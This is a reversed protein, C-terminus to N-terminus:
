PVRASLFRGPTTGFHRSFARTMHSQDSFGVYAAAEALSQGEIMAQKARKVRLQTLYGHPTAGVEKSFRRLIQFRSLGSVKAFDDLSLPLDLEGEIKALVELTQKSLAFTPKDGETPDSRLVASVALMLQEDALERNGGPETVANIARKVTEAVTRCQIVPHEIEIASTQIDTFASIADPAFYLMRWGRAEGQTGLGDHIEGPNVTMVDGARAEVSGRGSWSYQGRAEMIGIGFEDHSHRPFSRDSVISVADIASYQTTQNVAKHM